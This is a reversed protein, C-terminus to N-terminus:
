AQEEVKGAPEAASHFLEEIDIFRKSMSFQQSRKQSCCESVTDKSPAKRGGYGKGRGMSESVKPNYFIYLSLYPGM